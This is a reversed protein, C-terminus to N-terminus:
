LILHVDGFEHKRYNRAVAERYASELLPGDLFARLIWQHTASADHLGTLLGDATQIEHTEDIVLDTWGSAAVVEGDRVASELARLVTTGVAIIRRRERRAANVASATAHPVAFREIAPREPAEFSAVGCHLTITHLEVRQAELARAVRPTFPRGASPMESSGFEHAFMTQYDRLPIAETVYRYRIPDGVKLLYSTMELPIRFTAYWVRPFQPDVPALMVASGGHPMTLEEGPTVAGRPEVMWLREDIMTSVHVAIPAGNRHRAPIAAPLTASDNVVIVDGGQLFRAIDLFQAHAHTRAARQTVMLRVRDREIGRHEVPADAEALAAAPANAIM